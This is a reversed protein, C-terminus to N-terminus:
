AAGGISGAPAASFTKNFNRVAIERDRASAYRGCHLCSVASVKKGTADQGSFIMPATGCCMKPDKM